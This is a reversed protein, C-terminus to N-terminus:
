AEGRLHRGCSIGVFSSQNRSLAGERGYWINKDPFSPPLQMMVSSVLFGRLVTVARRLRASPLRAAATAPPVAPCAASVVGCIALVGSQTCSAEASPSPSAVSAM